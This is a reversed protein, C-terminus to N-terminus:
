SCSAAPLGHSGLPRQRSSRAVYRPHGPPWRVHTVHPPWIRIFRDDDQTGSIFSTLLPEGIVLTESLFRPVSVLSLSEILDPHPWGPPLFRRQTPKTVETTMYAIRVTSSLPPTGRALMSQLSLRMFEALDPELPPPGRRENRAMGTVFATKACWSAVIVQQRPTLVISLDDLVAKLLPHAPVEFLQNLRRQCKQCVPKLLARPSQEWGQSPIRREPPLARYIRFLRKRLWKPYADEETWPGDSSQCIRCCKVSRKGRTM